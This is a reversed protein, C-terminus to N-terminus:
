CAVPQTWFAPAEAAPEPPLSFSPNQPNYQQLRKVHATQGIKWIFTQLNNIAAEKPKDAM